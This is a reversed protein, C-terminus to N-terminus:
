ECDSLNARSVGICDFFQHEVTKLVEPRGQKMGRFAKWFRFTQTRHFPRFVVALPNFERRGGFFGFAIRGLSIGWRNRESWNLIVARRGLYPLFREEIYSHWLPSDSYVLLIDHGRTNWSLWVGVHLCIWLLTYSVLAVLVFPLALILAGAVIPANWWRLERQRTMAKM